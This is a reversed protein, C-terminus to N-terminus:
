RAQDAWESTGLAMPFGLEVVERREPAVLLVGDLGSGISLRFLDFSALTTM